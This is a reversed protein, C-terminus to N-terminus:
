VLTGAELTVTLKLSINKAIGTADTTGTQVIRLYGDKDNVLESAQTTITKKYTQFNNRNTVVFTTIENSAGQLVFWVTPTNGFWTTYDPASVYAEMTWEITLDSSSYKKMLNLKNTYDTSNGEDLFAVSKFEKNLATSATLSIEYEKTTYYRATLTTNTDPFVTQDIPEFDEYWKDFTFGERTPTPLEMPDGPKGILTKFDVEGGNANLTVTVSKNKKSSSGSSSGGFLSCAAAGLVVSAALLVCLVIIVVKKM